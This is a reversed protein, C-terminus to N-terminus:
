GMIIVNGNKTNYKMNSLLLNLFLKIMRKINTKM